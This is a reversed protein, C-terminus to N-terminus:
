VWCQVDCPRHASWKSQIHWVCHSEQIVAAMCVCCLLSITSLLDGVGRDTAKTSPAFSKRKRKNESEFHSAIFKIAIQLYILDGAVSTPMPRVPLFRCIFWVTLCKRGLCYISNVNANRNGIKFPMKRQARQAGKKNQTDWWMRRKRKESALHRWVWM